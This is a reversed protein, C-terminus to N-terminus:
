DATYYPSLFHIPVMKDLKEDDTKLIFDTTLKFNEPKVKIYKFRIPMDDILDEYGSSDNELYEMHGYNDSNNMNGPSLDYANNHELTGLNNGNEYNEPPICSRPVLLKKLSHEHNVKKFCKKCLAFNECITCEYVYNLPHIPFNCEDCLFWLDRKEGNLQHLNNNQELLEENQKGKKKQDRLRNMNGHNESFVNDENIFKNNNKDCNENQKERKLGGLLMKKKEEKQKRKKERRKEQRKKKKLNQRVSSGIKRPASNIINGNQEEYRFNYTKEFNEAKELEEDDIEDIEEYINQIKDERWLEKLIYDRLFEEDKSLNDKWYEKLLNNEEAIINGSKNLFNEYYEKEELIEKESKEKVTFFSDNNGNRIEEDAVKCVELIKQKLEKQEDLYSKKKKQSCIEKEKNILEEEEEDFAQCGEKLLIDRFYQSYSLGSKPEGEGKEFNQEDRQSNELNELGGYEEGSQKSVHESNHKSAEENNEGQASVGSEVEFDSDHFFDEKRNLLDADNSKLRLLLDSFKKKFKSTLLLGDHDEDSSSSNDDCSATEDENEDENEDEKAKEHVTAKHEEKELEVKKKSSSKVRQKEGKKKACSQINERSSDECNLGKGKEHSLEESMSSASHVLEESNGDDETSIEKGSLDGNSYLSDSNFLNKIIKKQKKISNKKEKKSIKRKKDENVNESENEKNGSHTTAEMRRKTYKKETDKM